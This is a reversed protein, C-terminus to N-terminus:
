AFSAVADGEDHFTEFVSNLRTVFLLEAVKPTPNLLKLQGGRDSTKSHCNVLETLGSSDIYNVGEIDMLLKNSGNELLDAVKERVKIDGEGITIKGSISLISVGDVQRQEIKM